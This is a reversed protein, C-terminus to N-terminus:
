NRSPSILWRDFDLAVQVHLPKVNFMWAVREVTREGFCPLEDLYTEVLTRTRIGTEEVVPAGFAHRPDVLVGGIRGLPRWRTAVEDGDFELEDLFPKVIEGIVHQGHGALQILSERGEAEEAAYIARPDAFFHRLAFPHRTDYMRSAVRAAEKMVAWSVGARLFSRIYLLEVLEVFTLAPEGELRPLESHILPPHRVTGHARSRGYGFAWRRVTSPKEHLLAAADLPTYLGTGVMTRTRRSSSM